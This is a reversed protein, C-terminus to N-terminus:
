ITPNKHWNAYRKIGEKISVKPQYGLIKQAKSIDLTQDYHLLAASYNTLRPEKHNLLYQHIWQNWKVLIRVWKYNLGKIQTNPALESLLDTLLSKIHGPQGNSINFINGSECDSEVALIIADAVNDVYTLDVLPDRSSPLLLNKNKIFGLLRPAIARDQPGFLGRPRLIFSHLNSSLVLKEAQAKTTAYENCFSPPLPSSEKINIQSKFDFYLSPTSIHIFRPVKAKEAALLIHETGKVNASIFDSEKGWPSSLAACHVVAYADSCALDLSKLSNSNSLDIPHFVAQYRQAIKDGLAQDRGIFHIEYQLHYLRILAQGLM